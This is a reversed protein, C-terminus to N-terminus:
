KKLKRWKIHKTKHKPLNLFINKILKQNKSRSILNILDIHFGLLQVIKPFDHINSITYEMCFLIADILGQSFQEIHLPKPKPKSFVEPELFECQM